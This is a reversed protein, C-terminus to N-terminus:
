TRKVGVCSVVSTGKKVPMYYLVIAKSEHIAKYLVIVIKQSWKFKNRTKQIYEEIMEKSSFKAM